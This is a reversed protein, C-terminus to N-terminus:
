KVKKVPNCLLHWKRSLTCQISYLERTFRNIKGSKELKGISSEFDTENKVLGPMVGRCQVKNLWFQDMYDDVPLYWEQASDIFKQAARPTIFYSRTAGPGRNYEVIDHQKYKDIRTFPRYRGNVFLRVYDYKALQDIECMSEDFCAELQADDEIVVIPEGLKICQEWLLYHSAFCGLEGPTLGYGKYRLRKALNYKVFLPHQEKRGDVADLFKFKQNTASFQSEIHARREAADALSIVFVQM